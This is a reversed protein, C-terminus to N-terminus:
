FKLTVALGTKSFVTKNFFHGEVIQLDLNEFLIISRHLVFVPIHGVAMGTKTYLSQKSKYGSQIRSRNKRRPMRQNKRQFLSQLRM